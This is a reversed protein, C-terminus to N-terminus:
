AKGMSLIMISFKQSEFGDQFHCPGVHMLVNTKTCDPPNSCSTQQRSSCAVPLCVEKQIMITGCVFMCWVPLGRKPDPHIGNCKKHIVLCTDIMKDKWAVHLAILM